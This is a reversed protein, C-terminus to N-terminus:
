PTPRKGEYAFWARLGAVRKLPSPMPRNAIYHPNPMISLTSSEFFVRQASECRCRLRAAIGRAHM